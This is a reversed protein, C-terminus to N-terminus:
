GKGLLLDVVWCGRVHEGGGRCHGLVDANDCGAEELADALVPLRDFAREDYIARALNRVAGGNWALWSPDAAVPRFPNGFIDRLLASQSRNEGQGGCNQAAWAVSGAARPAEPFAAAEAGLAAYDEATLDEPNVFALAAHAGSRAAALEDDPSLGDAFREAVEIVTRSRKDTLLHWVRRCCACAFLRSKRDSAKGRLFELVPQPDGCALWEAETM